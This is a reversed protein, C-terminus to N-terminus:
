MEIKSEKEKQLDAVTWELQRRTVEAEDLQTRLSQIMGELHRERDKTIDRLNTLEADKERSNRDLEAHRIYVFM